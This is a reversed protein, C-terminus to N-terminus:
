AARPCSQSARPCSKPAGPSSKPPEPDSKPALNSGLHVGLPVFDVGLGELISALVTCFATLMYSTIGFEMKHAVGTKQIGDQQFNPAGPAALIISFVLSVNINIYKRPLGNQRGLHAWSAGPVCCSPGAAGLRLDLPLILSPTYLGDLQWSSPLYALKFYSSPHCSPNLGFNAATM